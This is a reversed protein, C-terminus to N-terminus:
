DFVVRGPKLFLSSLDSFNENLCDWGALARDALLAKVTDAPSSLEDRYSMAHTLIHLRKYEQSRIIELVPERWNIRSDSLYKFDHFFRHSYSNVIGPIQWNADLTRQSPRHMSVVRVAYGGGISQSLLSAEAHIASVIDEDPGYLTEDFHLGIEHGLSVIECLANHAHLAFPNYFDNKMLVFFTSAIGEDAEINALELARAPSMDVDHRMIVAKNAKGWNFYNCFTYGSERLVGILYRFGDWTFLPRGNAELPSDKM